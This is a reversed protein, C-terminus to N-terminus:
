AGSFRGTELWHACDPTLERAIAADYLLLDDATLVDRWRGNTGQNIFTQPGGKFARHTNPVLQEANQKMSRFNVAEAISALLADSIQINLYNAVRRIEGELDRLLDNFHVLLINPLHRFNWWSQTHHLNTWFPYGETEWEFWGRSIWEQWFERINAPCPPFPEGIRGPTNNFIDIITPTFNSYHNWLSMFVDRADRGVVVYKVQPFYPVADLPLHSKICRRHEQSEMLNIIDDLPRIRRDLWPSFTDLNRVQLDQFILYSIITQMWTTGSKYATAVIIDNDRPKYRTWRTSDLLPHQYIRKLEPLSVDM